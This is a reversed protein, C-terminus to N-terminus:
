LVQEAVVAGDQFQEIRIVREEVLGHSSKISDVSHLAPIPAPAVAHFGAAPAADKPHRGDAGALRPRGAGAWDKAASPNRFSQQAFPKRARGGVHRNKWVRNRGPQGGPLQDFFVAADGGASFTVDLDVRVAECQFLEVGDT